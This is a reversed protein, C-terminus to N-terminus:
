AGAAHEASLERYIRLAEATRRLAEPTYPTCHLMVHQIGMREYDLLARAIHEPTGTLHEKFEGPQGLDFYSVAIMATSAIAAPDRGVEACAADLAARAERLSEPRSLYASNWMDAYRATLRLMRAGHTGILLPPGQPRPGRPKIECDRAAYYTGEFDVRGERLLPVIIRLAEEFRGVRHDFPFGFARFEAENWGAGLGLILRGQSVEDLTIAMKALLAPNRFQTCAVLPGLEVHSTAEAIASLFTWCEWIGVTPEDGDRYLLHDYLWLSDFGAAEAQLATDRTEAYSPNQGPAKYEAILLVFGVKM